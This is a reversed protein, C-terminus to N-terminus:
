LLRILQIKVITKEKVRMIREKERQRETHQTRLHMHIYM